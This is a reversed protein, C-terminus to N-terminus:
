GFVNSLVENAEQMNINTLGSAMVKMAYKNSANSPTQTYGM